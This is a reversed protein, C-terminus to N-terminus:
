HLTIVPHQQDGPISEPIIENSQVVNDKPIWSKYPHPASEVRPSLSKKYDSGITILAGGYPVEHPAEMATIHSYPFRASLSLAANASSPTTSSYITSEDIQKSTEAMTVKAGLSSLYDSLQKARSDYKNNVLIVYTSGTIDVSSKAEVGNKIPSIVDGQLLTNNRIASFLGDSANKDVELNGDENEDKTPLTVFRVAQPNMKSITNGVTLIDKAGINSVKLTPLVKSVVDSFMQVNGNKAEALLKSMVETVIEKQRDIRDFDSKGTGQVKRARALDLAKQGDLHHDGPSNIITGLVDDVVPSDTHYDIGGVSDVLTGFSDFNMEAYRNINMGTLNEVSSILCDPGGKEYISNIKVNPEAALPVGLYKNKESDYLECDPRDVGTDRPISVIIARSGDEPISAVAVVDTRIGPVSARSGYGRDEVPRQDSGVILINENQSVTENSIQQAQEIQNSHIKEPLFSSIGFMGAGGLMLASVIVSTVIVGTKGKQSRAMRKFEKDSVLLGRSAEEFSIGKAMKKKIDQAVRNKYQTSNTDIPLMKPVKVRKAIDDVRIKKSM